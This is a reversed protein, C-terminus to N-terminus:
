RCSAAICAIGSAALAPAALHIPNRVKEPYAVHGQIGKVTLRGTLSGRRGNKVTDGLQQVSTPEGVICFDLRQGSTTASQMHVQVKKDCTARRARIGRSPRPLVFTVRQQLQAQLRM